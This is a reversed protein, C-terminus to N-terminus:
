FRYTVSAVISRPFIPRANFYAGAGSVAQSTRPDGETLGEQDFLNQAQLRYTFGNRATFSMGAAVEGYASMMAINDLAAPREGTYKYTAAVGFTGWDTIPFDYSVGLSGYTRPVRTPIKGAISLPQGTSPNQVSGRQIKPDQVVGRLDLRLGNFPSWQTELEVGRSKLEMLRTTFIALSTAPDITFDNNALNAQEMQFATLYLSARRTALKLGVEYQTIKENPNSNGLALMAARNQFGIAQDASHFRPSYSYRAFAALSRNFQYHAGLTSTAGSNDVSGATTAGSYLAVNRLAPLTGGPANLDVNVTGTQSWNYDLKTYRVGGDLTLSGIKHEANFYVSLDKEETDTDRFNFSGINTLGNHTYKGIDAGTTANVFSLDLRKYSPSVDILANVGQWFIKNKLISFYGGVSLTTKKDNFAHIFRLDNQFNDFVSSTSWIQNIIGLGNRNLGAAAAANAAVVRGTSVETLRFAHNGNAGLAAAFQGPTTNGSTALTNALTQLPTATGFPNANWSKDIHTLRNRNQLTLGNGLSIEFETGLYAVKAQMGDALDIDHLGAANAPLRTIRIDNSAAASNKLSPGGPISRPNKLTGTLPIPLMFTTRDDLLKFSVGFHGRGDAFTHKLNGALQGGRDATYGPDRLGDSVRYFGGLAYTTNKGLPGSVWIDHRLLGYDGVELKAEGQLERSGQRSIFNVTNIAASTTFLGSTGGRLAEIREIWNSLRTFNDASTFQLESASIVPLGDELLATYRYGGSSFVGRPFINNHSEGGSSEAYIGPIMKFLEAVSRPAQSSITDATVVTIALPAELERRPGTLGTVVYTDLVFVKDKEAPAPTQEPAVSQASLSLPWTGACIAFLFCGLAWRALHSSRILTSSQM